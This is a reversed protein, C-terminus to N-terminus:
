VARREKVTVSMMKRSPGIFFLEKGDRSWVPIDGGNTSVQWKRGPEPFSQVYVETRKTENSTYALWRGDPSLKGGGESFGSHLYPFPKRDGFLPLVWITPYSEVLSTLIYRGDRSWDTVSKRLAPRDQFIGLPEESAPGSTAKQYLNSGASRNSQYAIQGGDASWM